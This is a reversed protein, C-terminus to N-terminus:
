RGMRNMSWSLLRTFSRMTLSSRSSGRVRGGPSRARRGGGRQGRARPLGQEPVAAPRAGPLGGTPGRSTPTTGESGVNGASARGRTEPQGRGTAATTSPERRMAPLRRASCRSLARQRPAPKNLTLAATGCQPRLEAAGPEASGSPVGPASLLSPGPQAASGRGAVRTQQARPVPNKWPWVHLAGNDLQAPLQKRARKRQQGTRGPAAKQSSPRSSARQPRQPSLPGRPCAQSASWWGLGTHQRGM